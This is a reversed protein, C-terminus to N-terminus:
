AHHSLGGLDAYSGTDEDVITNGPPVGQHNGLSYYNGNFQYPNMDTSLLGPTNAMSGTSWAGINGLEGYTDASVQFSAPDPLQSGSASHYASGSAPMPNMISEHQQSMFMASANGLPPPQPESTRPVDIWDQDPVQYQAIRHQPLPSFHPAPPVVSRLLPNSLHEQSVRPRKTSAEDEPTSSRKSGAKQQLSAEFETLARDQHGRVASMIENSLDPADAMVQQLAPLAAIAQELAPLADHLRKRIKSCITEEPPEFDTRTTVTLKWHSELDPYLYPPTMCPSPIQEEGPFLARYLIDWSRIRDQSRSNLRRVVHASMGDDPDM